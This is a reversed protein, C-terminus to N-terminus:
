LGGIGIKWNELEQHLYFKLNHDNLCNVKVQYDKPFFVYTLMSRSKSRIGRELLDQTSTQNIIEKLVDSFIFDFYEDVNSNDIDINAYKQENEIYAATDCDHAYQFIVPHIAHVPFKLVEIIRQRNNSNINEQFNNWFRNLSITDIPFDPKADEKKQWEKMTELAQGTTDPIHEINKIESQNEETQINSINEEKESEAVERKQKEEDTNSCAVIFALVIFLLCSKKLQKM